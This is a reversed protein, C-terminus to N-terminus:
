KIGARAIEPRVNSKNDRVNVCKGTESHTLHGLTAIQRFNGILVHTFISKQMTGYKILLTKRWFQKTAVLSLEAKM